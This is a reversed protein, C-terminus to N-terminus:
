KQSCYAKGIDNVLEQIDSHGLPQAVPIKLKELQDATPAGIAFIKKSELLREKETKDLLNGFIVRAEYSSTVIIGFCKVDLAKNLFVNERIPDAKYLLSTMHPRGTRELYEQIVGNSKSSIFLAVKMGHPYKQELLEVVGSSNRTEPVVARFGRKALSGATENGIAILVVDKKFSGMYHDFYLDVGYSSTFVAIEPDFENVDKSAFGPNPKLETVPANILDFCNKQIKSTAKSAPRTTLLYREVPIM